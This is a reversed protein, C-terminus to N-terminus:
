MGRARARLSISRAISIRQIINIKGASLPQLLHNTSRLRYGLGMSVFLVYSLGQVGNDDAPMLLIKM